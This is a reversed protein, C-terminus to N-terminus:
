RVARGAAGGKKAMEELRRRAGEHQPAKELATRYRQIAKDREGRM